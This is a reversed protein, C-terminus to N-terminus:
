LSIQGMLYNLQMKTPFPRLSKFATMFEERIRMKRWVQKDKLSDYLYCGAPHQGVSNYYILMLKNFKHNEAINLKNRIANVGPPAGSSSSRLVPFLTSYLGVRYDNIRNLMLPVAVELMSHHGGAVITALPLTYYIPHLGLGGFRKLFDINDTTTGSITAGPMLGFVQDMKGTTDRQMVQWRKLGAAGTIDRQFGWVSVSSAPAKTGPNVKEHHLDEKKQQAYDPMVTEKDRYKGMVRRRGKDLQQGEKQGDYKEWHYIGGKQWSERIKNADGKVVKELVEGFVRIWDACHQASFKNVNKAIEKANWINTIGPPKKMGGLEPFKFYKVSWDSSWLSNFNKGFTADKSITDMYEISNEVMKHLQGLLKMGPNNFIELLEWALMIELEQKKRMMEAVIKQNTIENM